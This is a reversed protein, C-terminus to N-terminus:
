GCKNESNPSIWYTHGARLTLHKTFNIFILPHFTISKGHAYIFKHKCVHWSFTCCKSFHLHGPLVQANHWPPCWKCNQKLMLGKANQLVTRVHLLLLFDCYGMHSFSATESVSYQTYTFSAVSVLLTMCQLPLNAVSNLVMKASVQLM